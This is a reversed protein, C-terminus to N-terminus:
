YRSSVGDKTVGDAIKELIELQREEYRLKERPYRELVEYYVRLYKKDDEPFGILWYPEYKQEPPENLKKEEQKGKAAVDEVHKPRRRDADEWDKPLGYKHYNAKAVWRKPFRVQPPRLGLRQIFEAVKWASFDAGTMNDPVLDEEEPFAHEYERKVFLIKFRVLKLMDDNLNADRMNVREKLTTTAGDGAAANVAFTENRTRAEDDAQAIGGPMVQNALTSGGATEGVDPASLMTDISQDFLRRLEHATQVFMELSAVFVRLPLKMMRNLLKPAETMVFDAKM